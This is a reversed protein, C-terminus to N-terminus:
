HLSKLLECSFFYIFKCFDEDTYDKILGSSATKLDPPSPLQFSFRQFPGFTSIEM